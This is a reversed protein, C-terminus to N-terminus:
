DSDWGYQTEVLWLLFFLMQNKFMIHDSFYIGEKGAELHLSPPM